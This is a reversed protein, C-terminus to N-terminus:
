KRTSSTGPWLGQRVDVGPRSKALRRPRESVHAEEGVDVSGGMTTWDVTAKDMKSRPDDNFGPKVPGASQSEGLVLTTVGQRIMSQTTNIELITYDSHDHLDMFGPAVTLGKMM